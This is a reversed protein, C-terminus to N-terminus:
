YQEKDYYYDDTVKNSGCGDKQVEVAFHVADECYNRVNLYIPNYTEMLMKYVKEVFDEMTLKKGIFSNLKDQVYCYDPIITHPKLEVTLQYTCFASGLPCYCTVNHKFTIVNIKMDNKFGSARLIVTNNM